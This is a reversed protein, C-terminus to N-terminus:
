ALLKGYNYLISTGNCIPIGDETCQANNGIFGGTTIKCYLSTLQTLHQHM